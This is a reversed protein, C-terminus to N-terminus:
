YFSILALRLSIFIAIAEFATIFLIKHSISIDNPEIEKINKGIVPKKVLRGQYYHSGGLEVGLSGAMAAEPIGSNPSLHNQGDRLMTALSRKGNQGLLGSAIVMLPGGIRAPIWNALDDLRAAAWGFKIYRENKYGFTSDMTNICKYTLALPAGGICAYFMPAIVGDITNESITEVTAKTIDTSNMNQTDRGVINQLHHKAKDKNDQRLEKLVPYSEDYLSRTALSTYIFFVEVMFGINPAFVIASKVLGLCICYTAIVMTFVTAVGALKLNNFLKRNLRELFSSVGGMIKVPHPFWKPDGFILDMFFAIGVM